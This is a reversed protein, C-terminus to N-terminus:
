KWVLVLAASECFADSSDGAMSNLALIHPVGRPLSESRFESRDAIFQGVAGGKVRRVGGFDIKADIIADLLLRRRSADVAAQGSIEIKSEGSVIRRQLENKAGNLELTTLSLALPPQIGDDQVLIVHLGNPLKAVADRAAKEVRAQPQDSGTAAGFSFPLLLFLFSFTSLIKKM